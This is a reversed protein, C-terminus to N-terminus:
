KDRRLFDALHATFIWALNHAPKGNADFGGFYIVPAHDIEFPSLAFCYVAVLPPKSSTVRGNVEKLRYHGKTDRIATVAGAYFGGTDNGGWIPFRHGDIWSEFGILHLTEGTVPDTVAHFGSYAAGAMRVTNGSLYQSMLDALRVERTRVFTGDEKPDLRYIEGRSKEGWMAFILSEGKNKGDGTPNPIATLGRIGGLPDRIVEPYLDSMDEVVQYSPHNGDTRRYIKRGASFLLDGDAEIIALPRTEVTGSESEPSWKVKGAATEDYVGSFIGLTGITLFLRDAGTVKDRHVCMARVSYREGQKKEGSYVTSQTWKGTTEERTFLSVQIRKPSPSFAGALLLNVPNPLTNGAGDTRFTVSKLIEPRLYQQGLEFDVVWSGGSHDLRLIQAWGTKSDSGGYRINRSDCWYSNAAFLRGQHSVLHMITAGGLYHGATDATGAEYSRQWVSVDTDAATHNSTEAGGAAFVHLFLVDIVAIVAFLEFLTFRKKKM